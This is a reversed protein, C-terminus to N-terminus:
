QRSKKTKYNICAKTFDTFLSFQIPIDQLREPHWQVAMMDTGEVAEIIGDDSLASVLLGEAVKDIAQHHYSNVFCREGLLGSLKTDTRLSVEHAKQPKGSHASFTHDLSKPNRDRIDQILSGGMAVNIVQLGRCIGFLPLHLEMALVCLSLDLEDIEATVISSSSNSQDYYNPDVDGGGPILIGDLGILIERLRQQTDPLILVVTAGAEQLADCYDQNLSYRDNTLRASVGILPFM